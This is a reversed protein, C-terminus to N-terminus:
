RTASAGSTPRAEAYWIRESAGARLLIRIIGTTLTGTTNHEDFNRKGSGFEVGFFNEIASLCERNPVPLGGGTTMHIGEPAIVHTAILMNQNATRSLNIDYLAFKHQRLLDIVKVGLDAIYHSEYQLLCYKADLMSALVLESDDDLAYQTARYAHIHEVRQRPDAYIAHDCILDIETDSLSVFSDGHAMGLARASEFLREKGMLKIMANHITFTTSRLEQYRARWEEETRTDINTNDLVDRIVANETIGADLEWPLVPLQQLDREYVLKDPPEQLCMVRYYHCAMAKGIMAKADLESYGLDLLRRLTKRTEPPNDYQIQSEVAQAIIVRMPVHKRM